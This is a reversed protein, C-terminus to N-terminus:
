DEINERTFLPSDFFEDLGIELGQTLEYLVRLNPSEHEQNRINSISSQAVGSMKSLRYQTIDRENMLEDLRTAVAESLKVIFSELYKM